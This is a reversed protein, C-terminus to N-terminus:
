GDKKVGFRNGIYRTSTIFHKRFDEFGILSILGAIAFPLTILDWITLTKQKKM